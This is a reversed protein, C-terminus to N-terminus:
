FKKLLGEQAQSRFACTSSCVHEDPDGCDARGLFLSRGPGSGSPRKRCQARGEKCELEWFGLYAVLVRSCAAGPGSLQGVHRLDCSWAGKCHQALGGTSRKRQGPVQEPWLATGLPEHLYEPAYLRYAGKWNHLWRGLNKPSAPHWRNEHLIFGNAM